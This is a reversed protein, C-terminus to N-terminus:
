SGIRRSSSSKIYPAISASGPVSVLAACVNRCITPYIMPMMSLQINQADLKRAHIHVRYVPLPLSRIMRHSIALGITQM